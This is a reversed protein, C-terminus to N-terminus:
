LADPKISFIATAGPGCAIYFRDYLSNETPHSTPFAAPLQVDMQYYGVLGPALGLYKVTAPGGPESTCVPVNPVVALPSASAPAGTAPAPQVPGFGTGYFHLVEGPLAPRNITVYGRWDQHIAGGGLDYLSSTRGQVPILSPWDVAPTVAAQASSEAPAGANTVVQVTVPQGPQIEWPAQFTISGPAVSLLPAPVGDLTVRANGLLTPLPSALSAGYAADSLGLGGLTTASGPVLTGSLDVAAPRFVTRVPQGASLDLKVLKGDGSLYWAVQGDDSMAYRQVGTPESGSTLEQFGSGDLDIAYLQTTGPPNTTGWQATSLFMVRKGDAGIAPSYTDGNPHVFLNDQKTAIHYVRLYRQGVGGAATSTYVVTQAAGDIVPESARESIPSTLQGDRFICLTHSGDVPLECGALVATGDEALVRGSTSYDLDSDGLDVPLTQMQGSQLDVWVPRDHLPFPANPRTLLYRGNASLSGKGEYTLVGRGPVGLVTTQTTTVLYCGQGGLCVRKGVFAFVSGDRSLQPHSVLYYPSVYWSENTL